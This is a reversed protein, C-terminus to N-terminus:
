SHKKPLTVTETSSAQVTSGPDVLVSPVSVRCSDPKYEEYIDSILTWQKEYWQV